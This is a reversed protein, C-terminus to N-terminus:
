SATSYRIHRKLRQIKGIQREPKKGKSQLSTVRNIIILMRRYEGVDNKRIKLKQQSQIKKAGWSVHSLATRRFTFESQGYNMFLKYQCFSITRYNETGVKHNTKNKYKYNIKRLDHAIITSKERFNTLVFM